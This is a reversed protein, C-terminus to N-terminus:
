VPLRFKRRAACWRSRPRLPGSGMAPAALAYGMASHFAAYHRVYAEFISAPVTPSQHGTGCALSRRSIRSM